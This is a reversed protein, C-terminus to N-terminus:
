FLLIGKILAAVMFAEPMEIADVICCKHMLSNRLERYYIENIYYHTLM